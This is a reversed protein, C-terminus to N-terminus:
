PTGKKMMGGGPSPPMYTRITQVNARASTPRAPSVRDECKEMESDRYKKELIERLHEEKNQWVRAKFGIKDVLERRFHEFRRGVTVHYAGYFLAVPGLVGYFLSRVVDQKQFYRGGNRALEYFGVSAVGIAYWASVLGAIEIGTLTM